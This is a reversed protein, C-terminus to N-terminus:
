QQPFTEFAENPWLFNTYTLMVSFELSLVQHWWGVPIYLMDGPRLEVEFRRANRADPHRALHDPSTIDHVDSFVHRNHALYRTESPPVLHLRKVGVAQVLLNNTLDFHLPTFTGAPGVWLMGNAPTLYPTIPRVDAFLPAFAAANAGSNYATIYADNAAGGPAILDMFRDFPMTQKHTDKHLEYDPNANRGVQCEVPASGVTKRLYDPTWRSLAPWDAIAGEMVVPRGPAYFHDLFDKGPLDRMRPIGGAIPSLSRQREGVALLWDRHRLARDSEPKQPATVPRAAPVSTRADFGIQRLAMQMGLGAIDFAPAAAPKQALIAPRKGGDRSKTM